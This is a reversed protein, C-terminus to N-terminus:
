KEFAERAKKPYLIFEIYANRDQVNDEETAKDEGFSKAHFKNPYEESFKVISKLKEVIAQARKVGLSKNYKAKGQKDTLGYVFFDFKGTKLAMILLDHDHKKEEQELFPAVEKIKKKVANIKQKASKLNM